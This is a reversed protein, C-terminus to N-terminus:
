TIEEKWFALLAATRLESTLLNSFNAPETSCAIIGAGLEARHKAYSVNHNRVDHIAATPFM